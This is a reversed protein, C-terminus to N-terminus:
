HWDFDSDRHNHKKISDNSDLHDVSILVLFQSFGTFLPKELKILRRLLRNLDSSCIDQVIYSNLNVLAKSLTAFFCIHSDFIQEPKKTLILVRIDLLLFYSKSVISIDFVCNSYPFKVKFKFKLNFIGGTSTYTILNIPQSYNDININISQLILIVQYQM